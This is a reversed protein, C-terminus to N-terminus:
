IKLLISTIYARVRLADGSDHAGGPAQADGLVTLGTTPRQEHDDPSLHLAPFGRQNQCLAM